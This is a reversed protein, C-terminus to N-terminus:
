ECGSILYDFRVAFYLDRLKAEDQIDYANLYYKIHEIDLSSSESLAKNRAYEYNQNTWRNTTNYDYELDM